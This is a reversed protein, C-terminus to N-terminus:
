NKAEKTKMCIGPHVKMKLSKDRRSGTMMDMLRLAYRSLIGLGLSDRSCTM